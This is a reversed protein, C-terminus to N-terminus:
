KSLWAPRRHAVTQMRAVRKQVHGKRRIESNERGMKAKDVGSRGKSRLETM